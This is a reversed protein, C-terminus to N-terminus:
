FRKFINQDGSEAVFLLVVVFHSKKNNNNLTTENKNYPLWM